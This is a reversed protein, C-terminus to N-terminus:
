ALRADWEKTNKNYTVYFYVAKDREFKLYYTMEVIGDNTNIQIDGAYDAYKANGYGYGNVFAQVTKKLNDSDNDVMAMVDDGPLRVEFEQMELHEERFEDDTVNENITEEPTTEEEGVTEMVTVPETVEVSNQVTTTIIEKEDSSKNKRLLPTLINYGAIVIAIIILTIGFLKNKNM